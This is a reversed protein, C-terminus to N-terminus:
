GILILNNLSDKRNTFPIVAETCGLNVNKRSNTELHDSPPFQSFISFGKEKLEEVIYYNQSILNKRRFKKAFDQFILLYFTM